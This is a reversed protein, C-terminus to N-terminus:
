ETLNLSRRKISVKNCEYFAGENIKTDGCVNVITLNACLLFKGQGVDTISEPIIINTLNNCSLFAGDEIEKIGDPIRFKTERRGSPYRILISKDNNYLIGDDDLYNKNAQDVFINELSSCGDFARSGIHVISDPIIIKVLNESYEFAYDSIYKIGSCVKFVKSDRGSPYRILKIIEKDYLVGDIDSYYDDNSKDVVFSEINDCVGFTSYNIGTVGKSIVLEKLNRCRFFTLGGYLTVDEPIVIKKLNACGQFAQSGIKIVNNPIKIETLTKCGEFAFGMITKTESPIEYTDTKRGPPFRILQTKDKNFLVGDVDLYENNDKDVVIETLNICEGFVSYGIKTVSDPINIRTLNLCGFFASDGIYTVSNPIEIKKLNKCHFFAFSGISTVSGPIEISKMLDCNSFDYNDILSVGESIVYDGEIKNSVGLDVDEIYDLKKDNDLFHKCDDLDDIRKPMTLKFRHSLMCCYDSKNRRSHYPIGSSPFVYNCDFKYANLSSCSFYKIGLVAGSNKSRIWEIFLQPIIYEPSFPDNRFHRIYSCASLLPYWKMYKIVDNDSYSEIIENPKLSLDYIVLEGNDFSPNEWLKYLMDSADIEIEFRSAWLNNQIPNKGLETCCLEISTGLYLCPFGPASYRQTSMKSRMNFPVHFVRKREPQTENTINVVRYLKEKKFVDMEVKLAVVDLFEMIKKFREYSEAHYCRFSSDVVACIQRCVREVDTYVDKMDNTIAKIDKLYKKYHKYLTAYFDNGDWEIPLQYIDKSFLEKFKENCM